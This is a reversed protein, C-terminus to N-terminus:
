PNQSLVSQLSLFLPINPGGQRSVIAIWTDGTKFMMLDIVAQVRAFDTQALYYQFIPDINLM